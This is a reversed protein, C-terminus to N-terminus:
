AGQPVFTDENGQGNSDVGTVDSDWNADEAPVMEVGIWKAIWLVSISRIFALAEQCTPIWGDSFRKPQKSDRPCDFKTNTQTPVRPKETDGVLLKALSFLVIGIELRGGAPRPAIM